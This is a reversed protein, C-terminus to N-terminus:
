CFCFMKLSPVVDLSLTQFIFTWKGHRWQGQLLVKATRKKKKQKVSCFTVKTDGNGDLIRLYPVISYKQRPLNATPTFELGSKCGMCLHQIFSACSSCSSASLAVCRSSVGCCKERESVLLCLRSLAGVECSFALPLLLHLLISRGTEVCKLGLSLKTVLVTFFFFFGVFSFSHVLPVFPFMPVKCLTYNTQFPFLYSGFFTQELQM